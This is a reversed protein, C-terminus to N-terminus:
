SRTERTELRSIPRIETIVELKSFLLCCRSSYGDGTASGGGVISHLRESPNAHECRSYDFGVRRCSLPLRRKSENSTKKRRQQQILEVPFLFVLAAISSSQSAAGAGLVTKVGFM